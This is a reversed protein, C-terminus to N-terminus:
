GHADRDRLGPTEGREIAGRIRAHEQRDLSFRRFALIGVGFGVVPMAGMLALMTAEVRITQEQNEVFGAWDLALGVIGLMVGAALKSTFSWAAFYTGEKREGTMYEDWDIVDAKLAQGLTPGCGSGMGALVSAIVMIGITGEGLFLLLGFGIMSMWMASLWLSRKDYRGGLWVWAPISAVTCLVYVMLMESTLDPRKMVYQAVYPVLVGIGGTGLQEIFFVFLLLRAHPNRMVDRMAARLSQGGRLAFDPREAPLTTVALVITAIAFAGAGAALWFANDRATSSDELLSVGIGFAGFLGFTRLLQRTGFIRNRERTEFSLEAGLAMHPVEFLTYATYFAFVSLTIWVLMANKELGAPPTWMAIASAALPLASALLWSKRRGLRSRTRDSLRGAIPDSIADWIKSAFFIAGIASPAILLVDTSFKMYMVLVLSFLFNVSM